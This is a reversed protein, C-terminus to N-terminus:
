MGLYVDCAMTTHHSRSDHALQLSLSIGIDNGMGVLLEVQATLLSDLLKEPLLLRLVDKQCGGLHAADNGVLAM